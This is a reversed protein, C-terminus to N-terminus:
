AFFSKGKRRKYLSFIIILESVVLPLLYIFANLNMLFAVLLCTLGYGLMYMIMNPNNLYNLRVFGLIISVIAMFRGFTCVKNCNCHTNHTFFLGLNNVSKDFIATGVSYKTKFLFYMFFLYLSEAITIVTYNM